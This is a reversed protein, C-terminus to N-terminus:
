GSADAWATVDVAGEEDVSQEEGLRSAVSSLVVSVLEFFVSQGVGDLRLTAEKDQWVPSDM